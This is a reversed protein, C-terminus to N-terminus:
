IFLGMPTQSLENRQATSQLSISFSQLNHFRLRINGPDKPFSYPSLSEKCITTFRLFLPVFCLQLIRFCQLRLVIITMVM